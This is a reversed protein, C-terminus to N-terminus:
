ILTVTAGTHDVPLIFQRAELGIANFADQMAQAIAGHNERAFAVMAPGAGSLTVAAAGADFAAKEAEHYGPLLPVRYPQHLKDKMVKGLREFDGERLAEITFALHSLNHVADQHTIHSPLVQRMQSTSISIEPLIIVLSLDPVPIQQTLIDDGEMTVAVFGGLLSAAANDLHDELELALKLIQTPSSTRGLLADAALLGGIIAASSSGLGSSLPIRNQLRLIMGPPFTGFVEFRKKFAQLCLNTDDRPLQDVGEGEIVIEIGEGKVDVEIANHLDLALALCDFGPGLNATSAPVTVSVNSM